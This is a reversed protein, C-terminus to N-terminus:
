SHGNNFIEMEWFEKQLPKMRLKWMLKRLQITPYIGNEDPKGGNEKLYKKFEVNKWIDGAIWPAIPGWWRTKRELNYHEQVVALGIDDIKFLTCSNYLPANCYYIYGAGTWKEPKEYFYKM